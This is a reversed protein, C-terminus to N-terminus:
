RILSHGSPRGKSKREAEARQELVAPRTNKKPQNHVLHPNLSPMEDTGGLLISNRRWKPEYTDPDYPEREPKATAQPKPGVFGGKHAHGAEKYDKCRECYVVLAM